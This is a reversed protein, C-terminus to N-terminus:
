RRTAIRPYKGALQVTASPEVYRAWNIKKEKRYKNTYVVLFHNALLPIDETRNRLPPITIEVTNIRYILDERFVGNAVGQHLNLNTATVLRIDLPIQVNSGIPTVVRNQLVSLLKSQLPLPLNGIEDIFLTGGSALEIKGIRDERADTFAGKKHGFLESEFLTPSLSGVDVKVFPFDKRNSKQHLLKAILEKGTGNEGLILVNADTAAVKDVTKLVERIASSDGVIENELTSGM